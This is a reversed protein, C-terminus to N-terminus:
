KKKKDGEKIEKKEEIIKKGIINEEPEQMRENILKREIEIKKM